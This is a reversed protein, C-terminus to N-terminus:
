ENQRLMEPSDIADFGIHDHPRCNLARSLPQSQCPIMAEERMCTLHVAPKLHFANGDHTHIPQLLYLSSAAAVSTYHLAIASPHTCGLLMGTVGSTQTDQQCGVRRLTKGGGM